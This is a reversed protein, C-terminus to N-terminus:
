GRNIINLLKFYTKFACIVDEFVMTSRGHNVASCGCLFILTSWSSAAFIGMLLPYGEDPNEDFVEDSSTGSYQDFIKELIKFLKKAGKDWKLNKLKIFYEKDPEDFDINEDFDNLLVMIRHSMDYINHYSIEDNNFAFIIFVVEILSAYDDIGIEGKFRRPIIYYFKSPFLVDRSYKIQPIERIFSDPVRLVYYDADAFYGRLNEINKILRKFGKSESVMWISEFIDKLGNVNPYDGLVNNSAKKIKARNEETSKFVSM